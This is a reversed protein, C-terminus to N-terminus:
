KEGLVFRELNATEQRLLAAIFNIYGVEDVMGNVSRELDMMQGCGLASMANSLRRMSELLQVETDKLEEQINMMKGNAISPETKKQNIEYDNMM